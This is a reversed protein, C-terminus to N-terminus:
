KSKQKVYELFNIVQKNEPNVRSARELSKICDQRKGLKNQVVALNFLAEDLFPPYLEVSRQYMKYAQPYDKNIAYYIYGLNYFVVAMQPDLKAAQKYSLIAKPYDKQKTYIRGLLYHGEANTPAVEISKLLLEKAKERDREELKFVQGQLARSYLLKVRDKMSPKNKLIDEFLVLAEAFRKEKILKEGEVLELPDSRPPASIQLTKSSSPKSLPATEFQDDHPSKLLVTEESGDSSIGHSSFVAENRQPEEVSKDIFTLTLAAGCVILFLGLMVYLRTRRKPKELAHESDLLITKEISETLDDHCELVEGPAYLAAKRMAREETKIERKYLEKMYQSLSRATPRFSLGSICKDLDSAMEDASQYRQNLEKTLAKNLIAYLSPPLNENVSEPPEFEAKRAKALIQYTDGVFMRKRTVLEYLLIGISFIDSRHDITKGRAQEPSMYAVKGKILGNQTTTSQGAAKAIGFDIIKVQGNYTIFINHPGIDRHIINQPKGHFNKLNHAYYLGDCICAVIHLANELSIPHDTQESKKIVFRLDKGHLYEMAIFYTSEMNGFDYIQVINQHQLLAALKAENILYRILTEEATLHPSIKKIAILKEFGKFGTIKAMYLEAMGGVAIKDLLIYKGFQLPKFDTM